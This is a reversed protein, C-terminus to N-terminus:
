NKDFEEEFIKNWGNSVLVSEDHLYECNHYFGNKLNPEQKKIVVMTIFCTLLLYKLASNVM